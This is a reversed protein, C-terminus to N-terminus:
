HNLDVPTDEDTEVKDPNAKPKSRICEVTITVFAENSELRETTDTEVVIYRFTTTYYTDPYKGAISDCKKKSPYYIIQTPDSPDISASGDDPQETIESVILPDNEPDTDNDIVPVKVPDNEDTVDEDNNAIPRKYCIVKVTITSSATLADDQDQIGYNMTIIYFGVDRQSETCPDPTYTM